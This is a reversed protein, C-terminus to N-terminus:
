DTSTEYLMFGKYKERIDQFNEVSVEKLAKEWVIAHSYVLYDYDKPSLGDGRQEVWNNMIQDHEAKITHYVDKQMVVKIAGPWAKTSSAKIEDYDSPRVQGPDRALEDREKTVREVDRALGDREETVKSLEEKLGNKIRDFDGVFNVRQAWLFDAAEKFSEIKGDCLAQTIWDIDWIHAKEKTADNERTRMHAILDDYTLIPIPFAPSGPQGLDPNL